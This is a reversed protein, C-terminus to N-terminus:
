LDFANEFTCIFIWMIQCYNYTLKFNLNNHSQELIKIQLM